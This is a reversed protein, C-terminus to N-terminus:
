LDVDTPLDWNKVEVDFSIDDGAESGFEICFNYQRGIEFTFPEENGDKSRLKDTVRFFVDEYKDKSGAFYTGDPNNLYAKYSVKILFGTNNAPDNPDITGLTTKQPMVMLANVDGHLSHYKNDSGVGLLNIPSKGMDLGISGPDTQNTWFVVPISNPDIDNYTFTGDTPIAKLTPLNGDIDIKGSKNVGVLEVAGIVYTLNTNTTRAYFKVRSLAHIFNLKVITGDTKPDMAETRALLFDEQEKARYVDPNSSILELPDPVTYGIADGIYNHLGKTVSKSAAPSYAFFSVGGGIIDDSPWYRVPTYTWDGITSSSERRSIDFANFMYENANTLADSINGAGTRDWWGTVTFGLMNEKDTITSRTASGKDIFSRFGIERADTQSADLELDNSCSVLTFVAAMAALLSLKRMNYNKKNENKIQGFRPINRGRAPQTNTQNDPPM